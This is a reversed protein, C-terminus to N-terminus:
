RRPLFINAPWFMMATANCASFKTKLLDCVESLTHFTSGPGSAPNSFSTPLVPTQGKEVLAYIQDLSYMRTSSDEPSGAPELSGASAPSPLLYLCLIPILFLIVKKM